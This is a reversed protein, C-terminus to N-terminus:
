HVKLDLIDQNKLMHIQEEKFGLNIALDHMGVEQDPHGHAPIIHKPMIMKLFDRHDERSAHGSVHIDKFIRVNDKKLKAELIDRAKLTEETPITKCSFIVHDHAQLKFPLQGDAIRSLVANEEGQHGTCVILYKDREKNIKALTKRVQSSFEIVKVEKEFHVIGVKEACSVYKHLSRGLFVIKRNLQKGFDVISRLRAIHSSFTTVVIAQGKNDTGLLVDKLMERAVKESPTKREDNANLSDVILAIVGEEGIKRLKEYNPKLGLVPHNDFKFDNAYLVVGYKTHVAILGSQPTSHTIAILEITINDSIKMSSNLNLPKLRKLVNSSKEQLLTKLVELTYPSGILPCSYSQALFPAAGIHDLHCHGFVIAKVKHKPITSDDPIVKLKILDERTKERPDGEEQTKLLAPLFLGMDLIIYEDDIELVTMNKGVEQYGGIAHIKITM